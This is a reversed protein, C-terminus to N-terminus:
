SLDVLLLLIYCLFLLLFLSPCLLVRSDRWFFREIKTEFIRGAVTVHLLKQITSSCFFSLRNPPFFQVLISFYNYLSCDSNHTCLSLHSLAWTHENRSGCVFAWTINKRDCINREDNRIYSYYSFALPLQFSVCGSKNQCRRWSTSKCYADNNLSHVIGNKLCSSCSLVKICMCICLCLHVCIYIGTCDPSTKAPSAGRWVIFM